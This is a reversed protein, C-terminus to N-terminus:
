LGNIVPPCWRTSIDTDDHTSLVYAMFQPHLRGKGPISSFVGGPVVLVDRLGLFFVVYVRAEGWFVVVFGGFDGVDM